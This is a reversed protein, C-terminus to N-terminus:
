RTLPLMGSEAHTSDFSANSLGAHKGCCWVMVKWFPRGTPRSPLAIIGTSTMSRRSVMARGEADAAADVEAVGDDAGLAAHGEFRGGGLDQEVRM